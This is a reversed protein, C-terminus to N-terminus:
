QVMLSDSICTLNTELEDGWADWGDRRNRAFLEIKSLSPYMSEIVEYAKLPKASHRTRKEIIVSPVRSSTPPCPIKGRLGYLLLEHRSRFFNGLGILLKDWVVSGKYKFQWAEMIQLAEPLLPSTAWLFLIADEKAPIPFDKIESLPMTRYHKDASARTIRNSYQWPPDAYILDYLQM